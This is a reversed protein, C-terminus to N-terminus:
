SHQCAWTGTASADPDSWTGAATTGAATGNSTFKGEFTAGTSTTGGAADLNALGSAKVFGDVDFSSTGGTPTGAGTIVGEAISLAVVGLQTKVGSVTAFYQCQYAGSWLNVLSLDLHDAATTADVLARAPIAKKVATDAAAAFGSSGFAPLTSTALATRVAESIVIGNNPDGDSDLSQLLRAIDTVAANDVGPEAGPVLSVPYLLPAAMASGLAIGGISFTCNQGTIYQFEGLNGTVGTVGGCNYNLGAVESDIFKGTADGVPTVVPTGSDVGDNGGGGCAAVLGTLAFLLALKTPHM